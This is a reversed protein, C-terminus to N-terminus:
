EESVNDTTRMKVPQEIDNENYRRVALTLRATSNPLAGTALSHAHINAAAASNQGMDTPTSACAGLLLVVMGAGLKRLTKM